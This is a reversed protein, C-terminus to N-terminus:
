VRSYCVKFKPGFMFRQCLSVTLTLTWWPTASDFDQWFARYIAVLNFFLGKNSILDESRSPSQQYGSLLSILPEVSEYTSKAMRCPDLSIHSHLLSFCLHTSNPSQAPVESTTGPGRSPVASCWALSWGLSRHLPPSLRSLTWWNLFFVTRSWCSWRCVFKLDRVMIIGIGIGVGGIIHLKSNFVEEIAAPCSQSFSFVVPSILPFIRDEAHHSNLGTDTVTTVLVELGEKKPCIDKSGDFM